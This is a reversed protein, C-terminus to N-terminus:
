DAFGFIRQKARDIEGGSPIFLVVARFHVNLFDPAEGMDDSQQKELIRDITADLLARTPEDLSRHM